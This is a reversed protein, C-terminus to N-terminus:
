TCWTFQIIVILTDTQQENKLDGSQGKVRLCRTVDIGDTKLM